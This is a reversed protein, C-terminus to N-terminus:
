PSRPARGFTPLSQDLLQEIPPREDSLNIARANALASDIPIGRAKILYAGWLHSARWAVTCHLLLKGNTNRMAEAFKTVADPSYPYDANGRMPIYVYTMGLSRVLAAEDFAVNRTMEEPTRLNVVTTVGQAQLERLGRETPQGGIFVDDGVRAFKALFMGTTDLAVPAPLVSAPKPGTLRQAAADAALLTLFAVAATALRTM